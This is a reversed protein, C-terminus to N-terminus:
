PKWPPQSCAFIPNTTRSPKKSKKSAQIFHSYITITSHLLTYFLLPSESAANGAHVLTYTDKVDEVVRGILRKARDPATNVTVLKYPGSPAM